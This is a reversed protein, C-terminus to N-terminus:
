DTANIIEEIKQIANLTHSDRASLRMLKLAEQIEGVRGALELCMKVTDQAALQCDLIDDLLNSRSSM